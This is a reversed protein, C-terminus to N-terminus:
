ETDPVCSYPEPDEGLAYWYRTIKGPETFTTPDTFVAEYDLQGQDESLTFREVVKVDDGLGFGFFFYNWAINTTNVVLTDGEWHGVSYGVPSPPLSAPDPPDSLYVIRQVDYEHAIIRINEGEQIFKFPHPNIMVAPMGKPQCAMDPDSLPDWQERKAVADANFPLHVEM